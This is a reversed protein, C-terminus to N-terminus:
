NQGDETSEKEESKRQVGVGKAVHCRVSLAVRGTPAARPTVFGSAARAEGRSEGRDVFGLGFRRSRDGSRFRGIHVTHRLRRVEANEQDFVQGAQPGSASQFMVDNGFAARALLSDSANQSEHGRVDVEISSM